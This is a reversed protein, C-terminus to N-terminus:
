KRECGQNLLKGKFEFGETLVVFGLVSLWFLLLGVFLNTLLAYFFGIFMGIIFQIGIIFMGKNVRM